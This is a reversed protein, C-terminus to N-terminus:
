ETKPAFAAHPDSPDPRRRGSRDLAENLATIAVADERAAEAKEAESAARESDFRAGRHEVFGAARRSHREIAADKFFAVAAAMDGIEDRPPGPRARGRHQRRRGPSAHRQDHGLRPERRHAAMTLLAAWAASPSAPPHDSHRGAPDPDTGDLGEEPRRSRGETGGRREQHHSRDRTRSRRSRRTLSAVM